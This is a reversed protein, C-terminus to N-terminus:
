RILEPTLLTSFSPSELIPYLSRSLITLVSGSSKLLGNQIAYLPYLYSSIASSNPAGRPVIFLLIKKALLFNIFIYLLKIGMSRIEHIKKEFLDLDNPPFFRAIKFGFFNSDWNLIEFM